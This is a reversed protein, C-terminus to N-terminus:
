RGYRWHRSLGDTFAIADAALADDHVPEADVSAGEQVVGANLREDTGLLVAHMTQQIHERKAQSTKWRQM